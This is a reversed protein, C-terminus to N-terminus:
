GGCAAFVYSDKLLSYHDRVKVAGTGTDIQVITMKNAKGEPYQVLHLTVQQEGTWDIMLLEGAPLKLKRRATVEDTQLDYLILQPKAGLVVNATTRGDGALAQPANSSVIQPPTARFLQEGSESYAILDTVAEDGAVDTLLEGGDASFGLMTQHGPTTGLLTGTATDFIRTKVAKDTNFVAALRGGDDSLNLTVNYQAVRPLADKAFVKVRGGMTRVALRGSTTFYAVRQGDGSVAIPAVQTVSSKGNAERAITEADPLSGKEGSHMMLRWTGCPRQEGKVTCGKVSAYRIGDHEHHPAAQAATPATMLAALGAAIAVAIRIKM